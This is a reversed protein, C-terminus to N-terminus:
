YHGSMRESVSVLLPHSPPPICVWWTMAIMIQKVPCRWGVWGDKWGGTQHWDVAALYWTDSGAPPVTYLGGDVSWTSVHVLAGCGDQVVAEPRPLSGSEDDNVLFESVKAWRVTMGQHRGAALVLVLSLALSLRLRPLGAAVAVSCGVGGWRQDKRGSPSLDCCSPARFAVGLSSGNRSKMHSLLCQADLDGGESRSITPDQTGKPLGGHRGQCQPVQM